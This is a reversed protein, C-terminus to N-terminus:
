FNIDQVTATSDLVAIAFVQTTEGEASVVLQYNRAPLAGHENIVNMLALTGYQPLGEATLPAQTLGHKMAWQAAMMEAPRAM